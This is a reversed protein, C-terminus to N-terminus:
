IMIYKINFVCIYLIQGFINFVFDDYRPKLMNTYVINHKCNPEHEDLYHNAFFLQIFFWSVGTLFIYFHDKLTKPQTIICLLFFVLIHSINWICFKIEFLHKNFIDSCEKKQNSKKLYVSYIDIIYLTIIQLLIFLLLKYKM